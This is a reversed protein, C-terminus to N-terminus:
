YKIKYSLKIGKLESRAGTLSADDIERSIELILNNSVNINFLKNLPYEISIETNNIGSFIKGGLRVTADGFESTIRVDTANVLNGQPDYNVEANVIFPAINRLANGLVSSLYSSSANAGVSRVLLSSQGVGLQSRSVGFLLYSIAESQADSGTVESGGEYIKLTLEPDNATGRLDMIIQIGETPTNIGTNTSSFTSTNPKSEYIAHIDLAPNNVPGTFIIHSESVKFNRYFRLYSDGIIDVNGTMQMDASYRNTMNLDANFQGFIEQQLVRNLVASVNASKETKINLDYILNTQTKKPEETLVVNSMLFPDVYKLEDPQIIIVTDNKYTSDSLIKYVFNDQASNYGSGPISGLTVDAQKVLFQGELFMKEMDGRLTVSPIGIGIILNGSLDFENDEASNDLVVIDGRSAIDINNIKLGEFNIRGWADIHRGNDDDNLIQVNEVVLDSGETKFRATFRHYLGTLGFLFRGKDINMNGALVPQSVTGTTTIQGNLFGRIDGFNPILKSFFNIQFNNASLKFNVPSGYLSYASTDKDSMPNKYPIDGTLRLKGNGSANSVLVDTNLISKEYNIFADIRGIKNNAYRLLDSNMELNFVPEEMSGKYTISVRRIDGTVPTKYRSVARKDITTDPPYLLELIEAVKIGKAELSLDSEGKLSFKGAANLNMLDNKINFKELLFSKDSSQTNYKLVLQGDNNIIFKNYKFFLSDLAIGIQEPFIETKGKVNVVLASDQRGKIQFTQKSNALNMEVNISDFNNAGFKIRDGKILLNATVPYLASSDVSYKTYDNHYDLLGNINNLIYASDGYNFDWINFKTYANFEEDSNNIRGSINGRFKFGATDILMALPEMNKAIFDYEFNFRSFEKEAQVDSGMLGATMMSDTQLRRQVENVVKDINYQVVEAIQGLNFSGRANFDFFDTVLKVSGNMNNNKIQLDVPTSPINYKSYFSPAVNMKYSGSITNLDTGRGNINFALNLSSKDRPNKTFVSVDLNKTEGQLVYEADTTNSLNIRGKVSSRLNDTTISLDASANHNNISVVGASQIINQEMVRSSNMSYNLRASMTNVDFGSGSVDATVNLNSELEKNKLIAGINLNETKVNGKYFYVPTNLNLSGSGIANGLGTKIDFDSSFDTAEGKYTLDAFVKGVHSYDPIPLGPLIVRSDNPDIVLDKGTINYYIKMPDHLNKVNGFFNYYSGPTKVVLKRININGYKGDANLEFSVTSDLFNIQPLFFVLDKFNFNEAHLDIRVDNNKFKEYVVENFPNLRSMFIDKAYLKSRDTIMQFNKIESTTDTINIEADLSFKKLNFDSNTNFSINKINLVKSNTFYKASLDLEFNGIKLMRTDFEHMRIFNFKSANTNVLNSDIIRITGNHIKFDEVIVGWEFPSVTTDKKEEKTSFLFKFNWLLSDATGKVKIINIEPENIEVHGIVIQKKLLGFVDYSVDFYGFSLLTDQKVTIAGRNLRIGTLINGEISEASINSEKEKWSENLNNITYNLVIKNFIPTQIFILLLILLVVFGGSIYLFIKPLKKFFSKKNTNGTKGPPTINEEKKILQDSM